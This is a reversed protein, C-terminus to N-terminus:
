LRILTATLLSHYIWQHTRDVLSRQNVNFGDRTQDSTCVNLDYCIGNLLEIIEQYIPDFTEEVTKTCGKREEASFDLCVAEVFQKIETKTENGEM